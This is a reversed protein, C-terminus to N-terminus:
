KQYCAQQCHCVVEMNVSHAAATQKCVTIQTTSVTFRWTQGWVEAMVKEKRKRMALYRLSSFINVCTLMFPNEKLHAEKYSAQTQRFAHLCLLICLGVESCIHVEEGTHNREGLYEELLDCETGQLRWSFFEVCRKLKDPAPLHKKNNKSLPKHSLLM